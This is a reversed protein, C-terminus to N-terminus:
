MENQLHRRYLNSRSYNKDETNQLKLSLRELM